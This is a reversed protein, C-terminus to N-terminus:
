VVSKRDEKFENEMLELLRKSLLEAFDDNECLKDFWAFKSRSEAISDIDNRYGHIGTSNMDYIAWRWKGDEYAGGGMYTTKWLATNSSLPNWDESRAFYLKVAFYDIACTKDIQQWLYEYNEEITFDLEESQLFNRLKRFEQYDEDTGEELAGGKILVFKEPNVDYYHRFYSDTYKEALLFVGWYEGNVFLTCTEYNLTAVDLGQCLESVLRDKFKTYIDNGGSAITFVDAQYGSNEWINLDIWETGDYENRSYINLSKPLYARSVGGQIRIGVEKKLLLSGDQDFLLIEAEREWDIGTARYNAEWFRHISGFENKEIATELYSGFTDGLVYIGSDYDFLNVPDTVLSLTYKTDYGTKDDYGVFYTGVNMEQENGFIDYYVTRIVTAKDILYDPVTYRPTRYKANYVEEGLYEIIIEELFATSLDERMSYSNENFSADTIYIPGTYPISDKSPISGDLTYYIEDSPAKIELWFDEEYFGSPVSFGLTSNVSYIYFFLLSISALSILIFQKRMM